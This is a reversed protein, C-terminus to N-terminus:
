GSLLPPKYEAESVRGGKLLERALKMVQWGRCQPPAELYDSYRERAPKGL